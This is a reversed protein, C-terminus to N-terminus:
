ARRREAGEGSAATRKGTAAIEIVRAGFRAPEIVRIRGSLKLRDFLHRARWRTGLSLQEAIDENTPCPEGADAVASLLALVRLADGPLIEATVGEAGAEARYARKRAKYEFCHAREARGQFLDVLGQAQWSRALRPAAHDTLAPGTAYILVEGPGAAELWAAMADAEAYHTLPGIRFSPASTSAM